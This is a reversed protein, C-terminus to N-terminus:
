WNGVNRADLLIGIALLTRTLIEQNLTTGHPRGALRSLNARGDGLLGRAQQAILKWKQVVSMFVHIVSASLREREDFEASDFEREPTESM